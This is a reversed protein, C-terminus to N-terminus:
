VFASRSRSVLSSVTNTYEARVNDGDAASYKAPNKKKKKLLSFFCTGLLNGKLLSCIGTPQCVIFPLCVLCNNLATVGDRGKQLEAKAKRRCTLLCASLQGAM